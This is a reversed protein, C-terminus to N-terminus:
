KRVRGFLARGPPADNDDLGVAGKRGGKPVGKGVYIPKDSGSIPAYPKFTGRYYIAYVGSGEFPEPPLPLAPGEGLAIAIVRALNIPRLPNFERPVKRPEPTEVKKDQRKPRSM